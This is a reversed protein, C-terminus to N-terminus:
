LQNLKQSLRITRRICTIVAGAVIFILAILISKPRLGFFTEIMSSIMAVTLVFMRHPKAMPGCFDQKFGRNTGLARVYATGIALVSALWGLLIGSSYGSAYGAAVLFLTDAIRDPIENYLEGTKSQMGGEVAILGDLMNCLLRLQICVAAVFYLLIALSAPYISPDKQMCVHMCYIYFLSAAGAAAFFISLLSISNPTFGWSILRSALTKAWWASRTQIPRRDVEQSYIEQMM